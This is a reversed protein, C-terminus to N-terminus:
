RVVHIKQIYSGKPSIVRLLYPGEHLHSIDFVSASSAKPNRDSPGYRQCLQGMVTFIELVLGDSSEQEPVVFLLNNAPNPYVLITPPDPTNHGSFCADVVVKRETTASCGIANSYSYTISHNGLGWFAPDFQQTSVGNVWFTGGAPIGTLDIAPDSLCFTDKLGIIELQLPPAVYISDSLAPCTSYPSTVQVRYNGEAPVALVASTAGPIPQGNLWWQYQFGAFHLAHLTAIDCLSDSANYFDEVIVATPACSTDLVKYIKGDNLNAVYLEGHQDVGFTSYAFNSYDGVPYAVFGNNSKEIIRFIGSCYDVFIYKGFLRGFRGGRYVMGGTVSCDGGSHYYEYVPFTMTSAPPCGTLEFPASGEYCDWGYNQGGTDPFAIYNIEEWLGQGVDGIWLDGTMPDFSFRWPNRLGYAWIEPLANAQGLFPNDPPIAYGSPTNVDIRLMKGLHTNLNQGNEEPDGGGGGDGTGAYLYGDPGFKICGGNHNAFTVHPISMLVEASTTDAKNPDLSDVRYRAIVNDKTGGKLTYYIYFRRNDKFAPDFALGLLGQEGGTGVKKSINLFPTPLKNGNSDCIFIYGNQQVVFLRSDGAHAIDVPKVYGSSFLSLQISPLQAAVRAALLGFMVGLVIKKM